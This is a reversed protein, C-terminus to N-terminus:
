AVNTRVHRLESGFIRIHGAAIPVLGLVAKLMTSKGAGNPGVIATVKGPEVDFDVDWVVPNDNYAVTLDRIEVVPPTSVPVPQAPSWAVPRAISTSTM